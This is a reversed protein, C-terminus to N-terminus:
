ADPNIIKKVKLYRGQRLPMSALIDDAYSGSPNTIEDERMVNHRAGVHKTVGMDAVIDNVASVYGLIGTIEAGFREVEDDTLRIRALTGLHRIEEKTMHPM